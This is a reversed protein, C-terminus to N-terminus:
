FDRKQASDMITAMKNNIEQIVNNDYFYIFGWGSPYTFVLQHESEYRFMMRNRGDDDQQLSITGEPYKEKLKKLIEENESFDYIIERGFLKNDFFMVDGHSGGGVLYVTYNKIIGNNFYLDSLGDFGNYHKDIDTRLSCTFSCGTPSLERFDVYNEHFKKNVENINMGWNLFLWGGIDSAATENQYETKSSNNPMSKKETQTNSKQGAQTIEKSPSFSIFIVPDKDHRGLAIFADEILFGCGDGEEFIPKGINSILDNKFNKYITKIKNEETECFYTASHLGLDDFAYAVINILSDSQIRYILSKEDNKILFSDGHMSEYNMVELKPTGWKYNVERFVFANVSTSFILYMISAIILHQRM